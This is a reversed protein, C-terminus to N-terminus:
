SMSYSWLVNNRSFYSFYRYSNEFYNLFQISSIQLFIETFNLFQFVFFLPLWYQLHKFYFVPVLYVQSFPFLTSKPHPTTKPRYIHRYSNEFYNLFQISSSQLLIETFNLFTLFYLFDITYNNSISFLCLLSRLFPFFPPNLTPPQKRGIQYDQFNFFFFNALIKRFAGWFPMKVKKKWLNAQPTSFKTSILDQYNKQLARLILKSSRICFTSM